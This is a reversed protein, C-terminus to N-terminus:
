LKRALLFMRRAVSNCIPWFLWTVFLAPLAMWTARVNRDDTIMILWGDEHQKVWTIGAAFWLTVAVISLFIHM